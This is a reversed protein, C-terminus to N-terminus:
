NRASGVGGLAVEWARIAVDESEQNEPAGFARDVCRRMSGGPLM